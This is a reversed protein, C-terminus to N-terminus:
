AAWAPRRDPAYARVRQLAATFQNAGSTNALIAGPVPFLTTNMPAASVGLVTVVGGISVAVRSKLAGGGSEVFVSIPQGAAFTLQTPATYSGGASAISIRRASPDYYVYDATSLQCLLRNGAYDSQGGGPLLALEIGFRGSSVLRAPDVSLKDGARTAPAGTTIIASTAFAGYEVQSLDIVSDRAGAAIGGFATLDRSDEPILILVNTGVATITVARRGWVNSLAANGRAATEGGGSQYFRMQTGTPTGTPARDWRSATWKGATPSASSVWYRSFDTAPTALQVRDAAAQADPGNTYGVSYTVGAGAGAYTGTDSVDRSQALLNTRSEEIVLGRGYGADGVRPDDVGIGSTVITSPSTQVTAASARTLTLGMAALAGRLEAANASTSLPLLDFRVDWLVGDDLRSQLRPHRDYFSPQMRSSLRGM